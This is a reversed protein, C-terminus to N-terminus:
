DEEDWDWPLSGTRVYRDLQEDTLAAPRWRHAAFGLPLDAVVTFIPQICMANGHAPRRRRIGDVQIRYVRGTM